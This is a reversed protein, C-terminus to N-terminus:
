NIVFRKAKTQKTFEEAVDPRTKKLAATDIRNSVITKYSVKFLDTKIEETHEREFESKLEDKIAEMEASLEEALRQLEKYEKIKNEIEQITM